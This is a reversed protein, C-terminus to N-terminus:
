RRPQREQQRQQEQEHQEKAQRQAEIYRAREQERQEAAARHEEVIRLHEEHLEQLKRDRDSMKSLQRKKGLTLAM